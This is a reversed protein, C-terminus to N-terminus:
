DAGMGDIPEEAGDCKLIEGRCDHGPLWATSFENLKVSGALWDDQRPSPSATEAGEVRTERNVRFLRYTKLVDDTKVYRATVRNDLNGGM